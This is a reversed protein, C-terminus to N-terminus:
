FRKLWAISRMKAANLLLPIARLAKARYSAVCYVKILGIPEELVSIYTAMSAKTDCSGRGYLLNSKILPDFPAISMELHSVTDLHSDLLITESAGADYYAVISPHDSLPHIVKVDMGIKSFRQKLYSVINKESYIEGTFPGGMPNVSPIAILDRLTSIVKHM